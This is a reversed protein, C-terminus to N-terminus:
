DRGWRVTRGEAGPPCRSLRDAAAAAARLTSRGGRPGEWTPWTKAGPRKCDPLDAPSPSREVQVAPVSTANSRSLTAKPRGHARFAFVVETRNDRRSEADLQRLEASGRVSSRQREGHFRTKCFREVQPQGLDRKWSGLLRHPGDTVTQTKWYNDTQRS